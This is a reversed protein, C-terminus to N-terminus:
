EDLAQLFTMILHADYYLGNQQAQVIFPRVAKILGEAKAKGLLGLSGVVQLGVSLAARRGKTEDICGRSLQQELALQIM